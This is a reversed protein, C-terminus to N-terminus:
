NFFSKSNDDAWHKEWCNTATATDSIATQLHTRGDWRYPVALPLAILNLCPFQMKGFLLHSAQRGLNGDFLGHSLVIRTM